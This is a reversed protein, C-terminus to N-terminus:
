SDGSGLANQHVHQEWNYLIPLGLVVPSPAFRHQVSEVLVPGFDVSQIDMKEM